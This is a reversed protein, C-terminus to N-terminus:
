WVDKSLRYSPIATLYNARPVVLSFREMMDLESPKVGGPLEWRFCHVLQAVILRVVLLGLSIGPCSRRGAGFSLFLCDSGRMDANNGKFREPNFEEPNPWSNPDQSIAWANIIVRSKRPIFYGDITIDEMAERPILLPAVPHLRMSEKLVLDLYDLSPLDSEEVMRDMGVVKSLENQLKQMVSPNRLLESLAWESTAASTNVAGILMDLLIGKIENRDVQFESNKSEMFALMADVFDRPPGNGKTKIHEDIIKEFFNDYVKSLKKMRTELGQLDLGSVFPIYDAVNFSGALNMTEDVVAKFGRKDITEDMYKRGFLMRCSMDVILQSVKATLDVIDHKEKLSQVLLGLEEGRMSKFSEIKTNSLLELTCFKRANRWYPGFESFSLGKRDYFLYKGFETIPRTAFVSDHTKLFQIGAKPTSVVVTPVFGFQMYMIPGYQQALKQLNRHPLDGLMLLNGLLPIGRPGLPLPTKGRRRIARLLYTFSLLGLPLLLLSPWQFITDM